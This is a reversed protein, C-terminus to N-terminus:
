VGDPQPRRFCAPCPRVLRPAMVCALTLQKEPAASGQAKGVVVLSDGSVVGSIVGSFWGGNPASANMTCPPLTIRTTNSKELTARLPAGPRTRLARAVLLRVPRNPLPHISNSAHATARKRPENRWTALYRWASLHRCVSANGRRQDHLTHRRHLRCGVQSDPCRAPWRCHASAGSLRETARPKM